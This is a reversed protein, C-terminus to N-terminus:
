PNYTGPGPGGARPRRLCGCVGACRRLGGGAAALGGGAAALGGCAVVPRRAGGCAAPAAPRRPRCSPWDIARLAADLHDHIYEVRDPDNVEGEPNVYDDAAACGNETIYLRLGGSEAHLRLLLGHLSEPEVLWGM